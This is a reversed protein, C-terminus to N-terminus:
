TSLKEVRQPFRVGSKTSFKAAIRTKWRKLLTKLVPFTTKGSRNTYVVNWRVGPVPGKSKQRMIGAATTFFRPLPCLIRLIFTVFSRM